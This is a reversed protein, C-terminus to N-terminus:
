VDWERAGEQKPVNWFWSNVTYKVGELPPCGLHESLPDNQMDARKNYFLLGDQAEPSIAYGGSCERFEEPYLDPSFKLERTRLFVTHGGKKAKNLYLKVTGLRNPEIVRTKKPSNYVLSSEGVLREWMKRVQIFINPDHYDRIFVGLLGSAEREINEALWQKWETPLWKLGEFPEMCKPEKNQDLGFGTCVRKPNSKKKRSPQYVVQGNVERGLMLRAMNLEFTDSSSPYLPGGYAVVAPAAEGLQLLKGQAWITWQRLSTHPNATKGKWPKHNFFDTHARYYQLKEYRQLQTPEAHDEPVRALFSTRRRITRDIPTNQIHATTSTRYKTSSPDSTLETSEEFNTGSKFVEKVEEASLINHLYFLKPELSLTTMTVPGFTYNHGVRVGPWVWQEQDLLVHVMRGAEDFIQSHKSIPYGLPTFLSFPTATVADTSLRKVARSALTLMCGKEVDSGTFGSPYSMLIGSNRGNLMVFVTGEKKKLANAGQKRTLYKSSVRIQAENRCYRNDGNQAAYRTFTVTEYRFQLGLRERHPAPVEAFLDPPDEARQHVTEKTLLKFASFDGKEVADQVWATSASSGEGREIPVGEHCTSVECLGEIEVKGAPSTPPVIVDTNERKSSKPATTASTGAEGVSVAASSSSAAGGQGGKKSGRGEEDEGEEKPDPRVNPQTQIKSVYLDQGSEMLWVSLVESLWDVVTRTNSPKRSHKQILNGLLIKQQKDLQSRKASLREKLPVVTTRASDKGWVLGALFVFWLAVLVRV